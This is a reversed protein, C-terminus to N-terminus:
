LLMLCCWTLASSPRLFSVQAMSKKSEKLDMCQQRLSVVQDHEQSYM